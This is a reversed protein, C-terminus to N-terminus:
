LPDSEGHSSVIGQQVDSMMMMIKNIYNNYNNNKRKCNSKEDQIIRSYKSYRCHSQRKKQFHFHVGLM